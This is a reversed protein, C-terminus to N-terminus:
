ELETEFSYRYGAQELFHREMKRMQPAESETLDDFGQLHLLGHIFYLLLEGERSVGLEEAVRRATDVSIIIEGSLQQPDAADGPFTLVDTPFDHQLFQRNLEHMREDSILALSIECSDKQFYALVNDLTVQWPVLATEFDTENAIEFTRM